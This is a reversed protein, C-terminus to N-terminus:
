RVRKPSCHCRLHNWGVTKEEREGGSEFDARIAIWSGGAEGSERRM